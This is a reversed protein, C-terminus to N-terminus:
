MLGLPPFGVERTSSLDSRKYADFAILSFEAAPSHMDKTALGGHLNPTMRMAKLCQATDMINQFASLHAFTRNGCTTTRRLMADLGICLNVTCPGRENLRPALVFARFFNSVRSNVARFPHGERQSFAASANCGEKVRSGPGM